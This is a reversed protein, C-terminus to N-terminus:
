SHLWLWNCSTATTEVDYSAFSAWVKGAMDGTWSYSAKGEYGFRDQYVTNEVATDDSTSTVSPFQNPNTIAITAEFGNM